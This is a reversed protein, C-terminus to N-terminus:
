FDGLGSGYFDDKVRRLSFRYTLNLGVRTLGFQRIDQHEVFEWVGSNYRALNQSYQSYGVGVVLELGWHAKRGLGISYGYTIGASWAPTLNGADHSRGDGVIELGNQYLLGDKWQMTYWAANGYVGFFSGKRMTGGDRVWFRLEPAFCYFGAVDDAPVFINYTTGYAQLDLSMFRALQFEVGLNPVAMADGALNTKFGMMWPTDWDRKACEEKGQKPYPENELVKVPVEEMMPIHNKLIAVSDEVASADANAPEEKRVNDRAVEHVEPIETVPEAPTLPVLPILEEEPNWTCFIAFRVCRLQPFFDEELQKWVAGGELERLATKREGWTEMWIIDLIQRKSPMDSASVLSILRRWDEKLNVAEIKGSPIKLATKLCKVAQDTRDQSLLMNDEWLGDPSTSGFVYVKHLEAEPHKEILAHYEEAAADILEHCDAISEGEQLIISTFRTDNRLDNQTMGAPDANIVYSQAASPICTLFLAILVSLLTVSYKNTKM